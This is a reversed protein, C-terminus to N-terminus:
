RHGSRLHRFMWDPSLFMETCAPSSALLGAGEQFRHQSGYKGPVSTHAGHRSLWLWIGSGDTSTPLFAPRNFPRFITQKVIQIRVVAWDTARLGALM